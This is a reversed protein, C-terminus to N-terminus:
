SSYKCKLLVSCESNLSNYWLPEIREAKIGYEYCKKYVLSKQLVNECDLRM